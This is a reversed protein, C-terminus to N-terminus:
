FFSFLFISISVLRDIVPYVYEDFSHMPSTNKNSILQQPPPPQVFLWPASEELWQEDIVWNM